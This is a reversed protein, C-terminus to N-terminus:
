FTHMDLHNCSGGGYKRYIRRRNWLSLLLYFTYTRSNWQSHREKELCCLVFVHICHQMFPSKTSTHRHAIHLRWHNNEGEGLRKREGKSDREMHIDRSWCYGHCRARSKNYISIFDFRKGTAGSKGREFDNRGNLQRRCVM